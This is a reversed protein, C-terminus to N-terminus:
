LIAAYVTYLSAQWLRLRDEWQETPFRFAWVRAKVALVQGWIVKKGCLLFTSVQLILWHDAQGSFTNVFAKQANHFRAKDLIKKFKRGGGQLFIGESASSQFSLIKKFRSILFYAFISDRYFKPRRQIYHVEIYRRHDIHAM